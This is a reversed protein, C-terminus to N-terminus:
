VVSKRDTLGHLERSTREDDSRSVTVSAGGEDVEVAVEPRHKFELKGQPGEVAIVREAVSVKVGDIVPVPKRGVRSM